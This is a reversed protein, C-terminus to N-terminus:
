LIHCRHQRESQLLKQVQKGDQRYFVGRFRSKESMYGVEIKRTQLIPFLDAILTMKKKSFTSFKIYVDFICLSTSFLRKQKQSLQM